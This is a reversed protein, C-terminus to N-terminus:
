KLYEFPPRRLYRESFIQPDIGVNYKVQPYELITYGGTRLNTMKAKTVTKFGQIDKVQLAEYRRYEKDQKDFYSARVVVYSGRHIWMKYYAFEVSNPDKPTNKLVFYNKDTESAVLEHVDEDIHRGSVDEYFFDSGVFSTRKDSAAIRKVLDLGPDYLWRDDDRDLHKWVLFVTKNIDAPRTFYVYFKQDGTYSEDSKAADPTDKAAVPQTAPKPAPEDYRLIIFERTRRRGRSDVIQMKVKARGDKGQYYSVYNARRVIQEVPPLQEKPAAKAAAPKHTAPEASNSTNAQRVVKRAMEKARWFNQARAGSAGLVAVVAFLAAAIRWFSRM